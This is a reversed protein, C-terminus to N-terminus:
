AGPLDAAIRTMVADFMAATLRGTNMNYRSCHYSDYLLRGDPLKHRAGHAFATRSRPLNLARLVADHAIRGLALFARLRPMVAMDAALFANCTAIERPEPKNGPPVCKVANSIRAGVLMLGDDARAAFAGEAFHHRLLAAYLVDGAADGTFPRGTRNAGKLGPALGVVLLRAKEDGFPPIPANVFDPYARRNAARFAALRPCLACDTAPGAAIAREALSVSAAPSSGKAGMAAM